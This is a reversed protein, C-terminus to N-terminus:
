VFINEPHDLGHSTMRYSIQEDKGELETVLGAAILENLAEKITAIRAKIEQSPLWWQVIGALTDQAEPNEHLHDLIARAIESVTAERMVSPQWSLWYKAITAGNL